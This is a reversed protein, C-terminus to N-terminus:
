PGLVQELRFFWALILVGIVCPVAAVAWGKRLGAAFHGRFSDRTAVCGGFGVFEALGSWLLLPPGGGGSLLIALALLLMQGLVGATLGAVLRGRDGGKHQSDAVPSDIALVETSEGLGYYSRM